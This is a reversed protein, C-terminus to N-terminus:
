AQYLDRPGEYSVTVLKRDKSGVEGTRAKDIVIDLKWFGESHYLSHLM